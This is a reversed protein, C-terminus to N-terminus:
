KVLKRESYQFFFSLKKMCNKALFRFRCDSHCFFWNSIKVGWLTLDTKKMKGGIKFTDGFSNELFFSVKKAYHKQLSDSDAILIAFFDSQFNSRGNPLTYNLPCKLNNATSSPAHFKRTMMKSSILNPYFTSRVMITCFTSEQVLKVSTHMLLLRICWHWVYADIDSKSHGVGAVIDCKWLCVTLVVVRMLWLSVYM